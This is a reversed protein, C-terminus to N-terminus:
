KHAAIVNALRGEEHCTMCGLQPASRAAPDDIFGQAAKAYPSGALTSVIRRAYAAAGDLNGLRQEMQTLGGLVEGQHHLPMKTFDASQARELEVFRDRALTFFATKSEPALRDGLVVATGGTVALAAGRGDAPASRYAQEFEAMAKALLKEYDAPKKSERARVALYLDSSAKWAMAGSDGPHAKLYEDIKAVGREFEPKSDGMFGAFLDERVWQSFTAGEPPEQGQAPAILLSFMSLALLTRKM